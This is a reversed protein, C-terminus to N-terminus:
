WCCVWSTCTCGCCGWWWCRCGCRCGCGRRWRCRLWGWWWRGGRFWSRWRYWRRNCGWRWWCIWSSSAACRRYHRWGNYRRNSQRRRVDCGSSSIVCSTARCPAECRALAAAHIPCQTASCVLRILRAHIWVSPLHRAAASCCTLLLKLRSTPHVEVVSSKM